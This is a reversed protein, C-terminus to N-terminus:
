KPVAELPNCIIEIQGPLLEMEQRQGEACLTEGDAHAPLVAEVATVVVRRSQGTSIPEQTAQTGCMFHSILGFIRARSVERALCLDFLGDDPKGEPAM